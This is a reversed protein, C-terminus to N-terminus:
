ATACSSRQRPLRPRDGQFAREPEVEQASAHGLVAAVQSRVLELVLGEQEAKPTEALLRGLSGRQAQSRALVRVLGRLIPALAGAEARARLAPSTSACRRWCRSARARPCRRLAGPGARREDSRLWAAPPDSQRAAGDVRRKGAARSGARRRPQEAPGLDGLRDRHGAPGGGAAPRRARRPLQQRRRLQGSRRRRAPWGGLLVDPVPLPRAGQTLEHLHWAATAKPRM